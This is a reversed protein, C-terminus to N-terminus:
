DEEDGSATEKLTLRMTMHQLDLSVNKVLCKRIGRYAQMGDRVALEVVDGEWVPLYTTSLTWTVLERTDGSLYSNALKQAQQATRPELESLSRFDTITYGRLVNSQHAKGSVKAVANIERQVTETKGGKKVSDSYKHSVAVVDPMSLWDSERELDDLSVGRADDLDIRFKAAKNAPLVYPSVVITGNGNVDVRNKSLTCLTFLAELRSTGSDIVQPTKLKANKARSVDYTQKADGICKRMATVAMANKAITWPRVLKDESLGKLSSELNLEYEWGGHHRSAPDATVFYTGLVNRYNWDPVEHTIRIRSGRVWGDGRVKLKGSTRLDTYYAADLTSGSLDVGDLEGYTHNLSTASVMEFKLRDKRTQDKWDIAM